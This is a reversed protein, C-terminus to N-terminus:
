HKVILSHPSYGGSVSSPAGIDFLTAQPPSHEDHNLATARLVPTIVGRIRFNPSEFRELSHSSSNALASKLTYRAVLISQKVFFIM